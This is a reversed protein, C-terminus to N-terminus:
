KRLWLILVVLVLGLLVSELPFGPIGGQPKPTPRPTPESTPTPTLEPEPSPEPTPTTDSEQNPEFVQIQISYYDGYNDRVGLNENYSADLASVYFHVMTNNGYPGISVRYSDGSIHQMDMENWSSNNVSYYLRVYQVGTEDRVVAMITITENDLPNEPRVEIKTIEPADDEMIYVVNEAIISTSNGWSGLWELGPGAFVTNGDITTNISDANLITSNRLINETFVTNTCNRFHIPNTDIFTNGSIVLGDTIQTSVSGGIQTNNIIYVETPASTNSPKIYFGLVDTTVHNGIITINEHDYIEFSDHLNWVTNNSIYVNKSGGTIQLESNVYEDNAMINNKVVVDTCGNAVFVKGANRVDNSAFVIDNSRFFDVAVLWAGLRKATSAPLSFNSNYVRCQDSFRVNLFTTSSNTYLDFRSNTITLNNIAEFRMMGTMNFMCKSIYLSDSWWIESGRFGTFSSDILTIKSTDVDFLSATNNFVPNIVTVNELYLTGGSSQVFNVPDRLPVIQCNVLSISGQNRFIPGESSDFYIIKNVYTVSKGSQVYM